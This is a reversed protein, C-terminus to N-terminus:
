YIVVRLGMNDVSFNMPNPIEKGNYCVYGATTGDDDEMVDSLSDAFYQLIDTLLQVQSDIVVAYTTKGYMGRGSYDDRIDCENGANESVEQFFEAMEKTM